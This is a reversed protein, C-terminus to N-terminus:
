NISIEDVGAILGKWATAHSVYGLILQQNNQEGTTNSNVNKKLSFM